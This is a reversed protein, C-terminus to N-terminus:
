AQEDNDEPIKFGLVKELKLKITEKDIFYRIGNSQKREAIASFLRGFATLTLKKYEGSDTVWICYRNYLANGKIWRDKSDFVKDSLANEDPNFLINAEKAANGVFCDFLWKAVPNESSLAELRCEAQGEPDFNHVAGYFDTTIKRNTLVYILAEYGGNILESHIANWYTTNGQHITSTTIVEYRRNDEEVPAAFQENTTIHLHIYNDVVFKDKGKSEITFKNGGTLRKLDNWVQRNGSWISEDAVVYIKGYLLSNFHNSLVDGDIMTAYKDGMCHVIAEFLTNKGTGQKGRLTFVKSHKKTPNQIMDAYYDLVWEYASENGNCIDNLIMDLFLDCSGKDDPKIAWGTWTNYYDYDNIKCLGKPLDPRMVLGDYRPATAFWPRYIGTKVKELDAVLKGHKNERISKITNIDIGYPLFYDAATDNDMHIYAPDKKDIVRIKNGVLCVFYRGMTMKVDLQKQLTDEKILVTEEAICEDIAKQGWKKLLEDTYLKKKLKKAGKPKFLFGSM